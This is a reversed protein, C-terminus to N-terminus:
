YFKRDNIIMDKLINYIRTSSDEIGINDLNSKINNLKENDNILSDINSILLENNLKDEEIILAANKNVLDIANKYQHNNTVYPSPIFITPVKLVTIESITSAGSRSVMVDTVKMVRSLNDIFQVIKVHDSVKLNRVSEYFNKGTVFLVEYEKNKFSDLFTVIKENITKCGLSGMVILVLKKDRSLGLEEKEIPGLELAKESCPNGTLVVKDKDFLNLTSEFSVGIKDAYKSLFKNALGVVSNQEHIFTKKGLKKAAFIVPATVYGGAGIVVDPNFDNIIKLCKKYSKYFNIITKLNSLSLSRKLGTIEIAEYKIGEKPIIDKEM